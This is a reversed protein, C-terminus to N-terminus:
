WATSDVLIVFSHASPTPSRLWTATGSSRGVRGMCSRYSRARLFSSARGGVRHVKMGDLMERELAGRWGSAVLTVRHGWRALRGFAEHLHVEAGGARPNRRDLWNFV